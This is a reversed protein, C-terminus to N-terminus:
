KYEGKEHKIIIAAICLAAAAACVTVAAIMIAKSPKGEAEDEPRTEPTTDFDLTKRETDASSYETVVKVSFSTARNKYNVTIVQAGLSGPDYGSIMDATIPVNETQGDDYTVTLYFDSLDLEEGVLYESKKIQDAIDLRKIQKSADSGAAAANVAIFLFLLIAAILKKIM